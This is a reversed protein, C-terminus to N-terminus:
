CVGGRLQDFVGHAQRNQPSVTGDSSVAWVGYNANVEPKTTIVWNGQAQNLTADLDSALMNPYCNVLTAWLTTVAQGAETINANLLPSPTPTFFASFVESTCNQNVLPDWQRARINHALVQGTETDVKWLGYKDPAEGTAQVFWEGQIQRAELDGFALSICQALYAWALNRADDATGAAVTAAEPAAVTPTPIEEPMTESTPDPAATPEPTSEPAAQIESEGSDVLNEVESSRQADPDDIGPDAETADLSVDVAELSEGNMEGEDEDNNFPNCALLLVGALLLMLILFASSFRKNDALRHMPTLTSRMILTTAGITHKNIPKNFPLQWGPM